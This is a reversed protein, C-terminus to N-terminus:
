PYMVEAAEWHFPDAVVLRGFGAEKRLGLGQEQLSALAALDPPTSFAFVFVSGRAIGVADAYPLGRQGDWGMVRVTRATHFVLEAGPLGQAALVDAGLCTRWRLLHDRLLLDAHLTLPVFTKQGLDLTVRQAASELHSAFAALRDAIAASTAAPASPQKLGVSALRLLGMGRTRGTGVRWLGREAADQIFTWWAQVVSDDLFVRTQLLTGADIAQRSFLIRPEVTGTTRNIGTHTRVILTEQARGRHGQSDRRYYGAIIDLAAGCPAAGGASLYGCDRVADLAAVHAEGGLTFILWPLLHDSVGHTLHDVDADARFGPWRKCSRATLPLPSVVATMAATLNETRFVAPYATGVQVKGSLFFAAFEEENKRSATGDQGDAGPLGTAPWLRRHAAALAGLLTSGPIERLTASEEASRHARLALPTVAKVTLVADRM